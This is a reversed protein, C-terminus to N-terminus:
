FERSDHLQVVSQLRLLKKKEYANKLGKTWMQVKKNKGVVGIYDLPVFFIYHLCSTCM